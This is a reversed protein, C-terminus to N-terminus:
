KLADIFANIKLMADQYVSEELKQGMPMDRNHVRILLKSREPENKDVMNLNMLNEILKRPEAESLQSHCTTCSRQFLPQLASVASIQEETIELNQEAAMSDTFNDGADLILISRNKDDLVLIRGDNLETLGVPAGQPRVGSKPLWTPTISEPEYSTPLGKEDLSYSVIKQRNERYGHWSVLLKGQLAKMRSSQYFLLGLPASHAPMFILPARYKTNCDAPQIVDSFAENVLNNSHCYPWGYHLGTEIINIEEYPLDDDKLDMSNEAQYLKQTVPHVALGMSNRLGRAMAETKIKKRSSDSSLTTKWIGANVLSSEAQVCLGQDNKTRVGATCDDSPAGVNMYIETFDKNAALQLLPHKHRLSRKTKYWLTHTSASSYEEKRFISDMFGDEILEMDAHINFEGDQNKPHFRYLGTALGVYLRGEPDMLLGNPMTIKDKPFLNTIKIKGTSSPTLDIAWITGVEMDFSGMDSVYITNDKAQVAYRPMRLGNSRDAVLGMCTDEITPVMVQPFGSCLFDYFSPYAGTPKVNPTNLPLALVQTTLLLTTGLLAFYKRDFFNSAM